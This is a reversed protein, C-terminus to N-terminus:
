APVWGSPPGAWWRGGQAAQLEAFRKASKGSKSRGSSTSRGSWVSGSRKREPDLKPRRKRGFVRSHARPMLSAIEGPWGGVRWWSAGAGWGTPCRSRCDSRSRRSPKRRRGPRRSRGGGPRRKGSQGPRPRGLWSSRECDDPPCLTSLSIGVKKELGQLPGRLGSPTSM